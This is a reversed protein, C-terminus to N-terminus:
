TLGRNAGISTGHPRSLLKRTAGFLAKWAFLKISRGSLKMSLWVDAHDAHTNTLDKPKSLCVKSIQHFTNNQLEVLRSNDTKM